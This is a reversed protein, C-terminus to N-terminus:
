VLAFWICDVAPFTLGVALDVRGSSLRGPGPLLGSVAASLAISVFVILM